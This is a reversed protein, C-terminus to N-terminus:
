KVLDLYLRSINEKELVKYKYLTAGYIDHSQINFLM